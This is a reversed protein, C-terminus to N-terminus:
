FVNKNGENMVDEFCLLHTVLVNVNPQYKVLYFRLVM